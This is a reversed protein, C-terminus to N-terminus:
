FIKNNKLVLLCIKNVSESYTIKLNDAFVLTSIETSPFSVFFNERIEYIEFDSTSSFCWSNATRSYSFRRSFKLWGIPRSFENTRHFKLSFEKTFLAMRTAWAYRSAALFSIFLLWSFNGDPVLSVRYTNSFNPRLRGILAM